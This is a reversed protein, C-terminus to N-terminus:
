GVADRSRNSSRGKQSQTWCALWEAVSDDHTAPDIFPYQTGRDTWRDWEGVAAAHLLSAATPGASLLYRDIAAHGAGCCWLAVTRCVSAFASLSV